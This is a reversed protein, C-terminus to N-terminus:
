LWVQSVRHWIKSNNSEIEEHDIEEHDISILQQKTEPQKVGKSPPECIQLSEKTAITTVANGKESSNQSPSAKLEIEKSQLIKKM